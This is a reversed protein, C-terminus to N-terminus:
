YVEPIDIPYIDFQFVKKLTEADKENLSKMIFAKAKNFETLNVFALESDPVKVKSTDVRIFM